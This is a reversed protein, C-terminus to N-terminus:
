VGGAAGELAAAGAVALSRAKGDRTRPGRLKAGNIHSAQARLHEHGFM